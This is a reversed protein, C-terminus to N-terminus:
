AAHRVIVVIRSKRITEASAGDAISLYVVAILNSDSDIATTQADTALDSPITLRFTGNVANLITVTLTADVISPTPATIDTVTVGTRSSTITATYFEATASITFSSLNIPTTNDSETVTGQYNVQEGRIIEVATVNDAGGLFNSITSVKAM